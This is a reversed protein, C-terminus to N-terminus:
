VTLIKQSANQICNRCATSNVDGRCLAQGYVTDQYDGDGISTNYFGTISTNSPLLELLQKLRNEFPSNQTYNRSNNPCFIDLLEGSALILPM